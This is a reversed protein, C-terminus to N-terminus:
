PGTIRRDQESAQERGGTLREVIPRGARMWDDRYIASLYLDWFQGRFFEHQHLVGERRSLRAITGGFSATSASTTRGYLKHIDRTAFAYDIILFAAEVGAGPLGSDPDTSIGWEVNGDDLHFLGSTGVRTGDRRDCIVFLAAARKDYASLFRDLTPLGALGLRLELDYIWEGDAVTTPRLRVRRGELCRDRGEGRQESPEPAVPM